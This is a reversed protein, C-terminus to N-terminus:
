DATGDRDEFMQATYSNRYFPSTKMLSQHTGRNEIRGKNMIFITDCFPLAAIRHSIMVLTADGRLRKVGEMVSSATDTDMQSVPDDLLIIDKPTVLTRALAIRQKQGGSLTVGREGVVTELGDPMAELIDALVTAHIIESLTQESVTQGMVINERISGSFIFSEQPMFGIKGRLSNLDTQRIDRGAISIHGSRPDYLRPILQILSTKGSGPPGSIGTFGGKGIRMSVQDLVPPGFNYAFVVNSIEIDGAGPDPPVADPLSRVSPETEIIKRVRKLSALGRQFLNTMWGLAIMPWALVGMYQVFAVLEGASVTERTVLYGGYFIIIFTSSNFFFTMLPKFFSTLIARKLNRGFYETAVRTVKEGVLPEFNFVKVVRIGFFSERVLETLASFSEQATNHYEHMKRGLIKTSVILFPMPVLALLTLKVNMWMMVAITAGGLLFADIIAVIGLGFAMRIHNIDSTARAMIDGTKVGDYFTPDLHIIRHFLEERLGKELHRASGMLLVRWAYRIAMMLAGLIIILFAQQAFVSADPSGSELMDVSRKIIEPIVLQLGDVVIMCLVGGIIHWIHKKFYPILLKM